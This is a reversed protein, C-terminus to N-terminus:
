RGISIDAKRGCLFTRRKWPHDPPPIQRKGSGPATPPRLGVVAGPARAEKWAVVAVHQFRLYRGRWRLRIKGQLAEEIVVKSKRLGRVVDRRDIQYVKGAHRVTYDNAVTRTTQISLIARLDIGEISRHADASALPPIAFERNWRPLFKRELYHNAEQITSIGELRLEKVLRDQLTRFAREVRGKAQPSNAAVYRVGLERLARTIQTEAGRGELTEELDARRTTKFHSARDAYIGLPLGQRRVYRAIMAMNTRTSDEAFFRAELRSTADDIMANLVATEGRGEFWDHISTDMQVLEGLCAKRERWQRHRVGRKRPSWLGARVLWRRLTERGVRIGDRSALCEVALTPGFDRYSERFRELAKAEIEPALKRNSPRGRLGHVLGRDGEAEFRRLSRRVQRVEVKLLVAAEEQKLRGEKLESIVRLRHREKESM